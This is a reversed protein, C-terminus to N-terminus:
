LSQNEIKTYIEKDPTKSRTTGICCFVVDGQILHKYNKIKFLDIIHEELKPHNIGTTKRSLIIIKTFDNDELLDNLLCSGTLGTAGILIATKPIM